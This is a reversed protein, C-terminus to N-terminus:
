LEAWGFVAPRERKAEAVRDAYDQALKKRRDYDPGVFDAAAAIAPEFAESSVLCIELGNIDTIIAILLVGLSNEENIEQLEHVIRDPSNKALDEYISRVQTSPLSFANRGDSQEVQLHGGGKEFRFVVGEAEDASFAVLEGNLPTAGIKHMGLTNVYWEATAIPNPVSFQIAAFLERRGAPTPELFYAYGDPGVITNGHSRYGLVTAAGLAKEVDAVYMDFKNLVKCRTYGGVGYNYTVELAYAEDEPLAGVMTKSWPVAYDGNCTIPCAEPNEEHRLVKLNLVESAFLLTANLDSARIVYHAAPGPRKKALVDVLALLFCVARAFM